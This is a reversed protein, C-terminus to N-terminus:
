NVFPIAEGLAVKLEEDVLHTGNLQNGITVWGPRTNHQRGFMELKRVHPGVLRDVMGYLEDPKRSTERTSSVLVQPDVAKNLWKPDGKSGVLLHEKSHNLWHGTRGTSITRVLQSTKIWTLQNVLSYGWRALSEKGMELTRGTVWLLFLGETQLLDMRLSALDDDKMSSYNLSMHINWSPDAIIVGWNNGLLKFDLKTIDCNIWQAPSESMGYAALPEGRTYNNIRLAESDVEVPKSEPLLIGYHVYRCTGMKHCTDLYSCDGLKPETQPQFVPIFHMKSQTCRSLESGPVLGCNKRLHCLKTERDFYVMQTLKKTHWADECCEHFPKKPTLLQAREKALRHSAVETDLLHNLQDLTSGKTTLAYIDVNLNASSTIFQKSYDDIAEWRRLKPTNDILSMLTQCTGTTSQHSGAHYQAPKAPKEFKKPPDERKFYSKLALGLALQNIFTIRCSCKYPDEPIEKLSSDAEFEFTYGDGISNLIVLIRGFQLWSVRDKSQSYSSQIFCFYIKTVSGNIPEETLLSDWDVFFKIVESIKKDM